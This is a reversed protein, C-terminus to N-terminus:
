VDDAKSEQKHRKIPIRRERREFRLQCIQESILSMMFIIISSVYLLASMNTFRGEIIYSYLYRLTGLLFMIFSVPLFVRMPSYLTCIRIIMMFFRIGDHFLKINSSGKRRPRATIPIYKVSRGTRLVGLTITTPYSYTNPLLYVFSRAVDAKVARFGSTLDQIAFKSVYSGLWNYINNGIGRGVSAQSGKVRAGVVMDFEPMHELMKAIDEPDHQGDADMFVLIDGTAARIGSKIAAGNGINYPHSFVRAGADTAVEATNDESGDDIVVIEFDPYRQKVKLVLDGITESENFAPIVVSIKTETM